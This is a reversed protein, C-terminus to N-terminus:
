AYDLVVRSERARVGKHRELGPPFITLSDTAASELQAQTIITTLRQGHLVLAAIGLTALYIQMAKRLGYHSLVTGKLSAGEINAGGFNAGIAWANDLNAGRLDARRFDAGYLTAHGLDAGRMDAGCFSALSCDAGDLKARDLRARDFKSYLLFARQSKLGSLRYGTFNTASCNDDLEVCKGATGGTTLWLAHKALRRKLNPTPRSAPLRGSLKPAIRIHRAGAISQNLGLAPLLVVGECEPHGHWVGIWKILTSPSLGLWEATVTSPIEFENALRSAYKGIEIRLYPPVRM